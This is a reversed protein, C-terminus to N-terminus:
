FGAVNFFNSIKFYRFEELKSLSVNEAKKNSANTMVQIVSACIVRKLNLVVM